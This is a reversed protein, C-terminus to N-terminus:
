TCHQGQRITALDTRMVSLYDQTSGETLGELPDLVATATGTETAITEAVKPDVLTEYYITAVDHARVFDTVEALKAPSPEADPSLGSIGIQTFGYRKALYGFADHAVVLDRSACTATGSAWDRDLSNLKDKTTMANSAYTKANAPDLASLRGAIADIITAMNRPDLWIHPDRAPSPADSASSGSAVDLREVDAGADLAGDPNQAVADDVSPQFGNIYVILQADAVDAVQQPSLELDHPEAGSATLSTVEVHDGGVSALAWQLPYFAAVVSLRDTTSTTAPPSTACGTLTLGVAAVLAAAATRTRRAHQPGHPAVLTHAPPAPVHIRPPRM